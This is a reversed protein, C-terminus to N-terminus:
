SQVSGNWPACTRGRTSGEHQKTCGFFLYNTEFFFTKSFLKNLSALFLQSFFITHWICMLASSFLPIFTLVMSMFPLQCPSYQCGQSPSARRWQQINHVSPHPQPCTFPSITAMCSCVTACFRGVGAGSSRLVPVPLTLFHSTRQPGTAVASSYITYLYM